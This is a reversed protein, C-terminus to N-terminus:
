VYKRLCKGEAWEFFDREVGFNSELKVTWNDKMELMSSEVLQRSQMQAKDSSERAFTKVEALGTRSKADRRWLLVLHFPLWFPLLLLRSVYRISFNMGERILLYIVDYSLLLHFKIQVWILDTYKESEAWKQKLTSLRQLKTTFGMPIKGCDVMGAVIMRHDMVTPYQLGIFRWKPSVFWSWSDRARSM